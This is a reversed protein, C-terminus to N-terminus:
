PLGRALGAMRAVILPNDPDLDRARDFARRAEVSRGARSYAEGLDMFRNGDDPDFQACREYATLADPSRGVRTYAEPLAPCAEGPTPSLRVYEEWAKAEAQANDLGHHIRGLWYAILPERPYLRQLDSALPLAEAFRREGVRQEVTRSLPLFPDFQGRRWLDGAWGRLAVAVYAALLM